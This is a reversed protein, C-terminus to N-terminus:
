EMQLLKNMCFKIKDKCLHYLAQKIPSLGEIESPLLYTKGLEKWLEVQKKFLEEAEDETVNINNLTGFTQEFKRQCVKEALDLTIKDEKNM